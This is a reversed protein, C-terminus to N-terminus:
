RRGSTVVLYKIQKSQNVQSGDSRGFLPGRLAQTLLPMQFSVLFAFDEARDRVSLCVSTPSGACQTYAKPPQSGTQTTWGANEDLWVGTHLLPEIFRPRIVSRTLARKKQWYSVHWCFTSHFSSFLCFSWFWSKCWKKFGGLNIWLLNKGWGGRGYLFQHMILYRSRREKKGSFEIVQFTGLIVQWTSPYCEIKTKM